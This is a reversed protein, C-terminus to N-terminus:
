NNKMAKFISVGIAIAAGAIAGPIGGIVSGAAVGAATAGGAKALKSSEDNNKGNAM